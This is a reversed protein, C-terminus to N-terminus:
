TMLMSIYLDVALGAFIRHFVLMPDSRGHIADIRLLCILVEGVGILVEDAPIIFLLWLHCDFRRNLRNM